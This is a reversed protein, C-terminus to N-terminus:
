NGALLRHEACCYLQGHPGPLADARPLRLSCIPCQVMEQPQGAPERPPRHRPPEDHRRNNRWYWAVLLIVALVVLYKM